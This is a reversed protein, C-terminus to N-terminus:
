ARRLYTRLAALRGGTRARERPPLERGGYRALQYAGALRGLGPITVGTRRLRASHAAPSEAPDRPWRGDRDLLDM